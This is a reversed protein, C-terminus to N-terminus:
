QGKWHSATPSLLLEGFGNQAGLIKATETGPVKLTVTVYDSESLDNDTSLRGIERNVWPRKNSRHFCVSSVRTSGKPGLAANIM